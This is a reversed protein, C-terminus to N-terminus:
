LDTLSHSRARGQCLDNLRGPELSFNLNSLGLGFINEDALDSRNIGAVSDDGALDDPNIRRHLVASDRHVNPEFSRQGLASPWVQADIAGDFELSQVVHEIDAPRNLPLRFAGDANELEDVAAFACDSDGYFQAATGDAGDLNDLSQGYAILNDERVHRRPISM